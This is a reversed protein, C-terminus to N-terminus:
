SCVLLRMLLLCGSVWRFSRADQLCKRLWGRVRLIWIIIGRITSFSCHWLQPCPRGVHCKAWPSRPVTSRREVGSGTSVEFAVVLSISSPIIVSVGGFLWVSHLCQRINTYNYSLTDDPGCYLLWHKWSCLFLWSGQIELLNVPLCTEHNSSLRSSLHSQEM